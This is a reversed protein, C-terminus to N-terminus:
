PASASVNWAEPKKHAFKPLYMKKLKLATRKQTRRTVKPLLIRKAYKKKRGINEKTLFLLNIAVPVVPLRAILMAKPTLLLLPHFIIVFFCMSCSSMTWKPPRNRLRAFSPRRAPQARTKCSTFLHALSPCFTQKIAILHIITM